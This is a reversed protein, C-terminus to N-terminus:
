RLWPKTHDDLAVLLCAVNQTLHEMVHEGYEESGEGEIMPILNILM